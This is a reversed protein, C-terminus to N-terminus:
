EEKTQGGWNRVFVTEHGCHVCWFALKLARHMRPFREKDWYLRKGKQCNSCRWEAKGALSRLVKEELFDDLTKLKPPNRMM